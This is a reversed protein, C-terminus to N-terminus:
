TQERSQAKRVELNIAAALHNLRVTRHALGSEIVAKPMGYVTCDDAHQALVTGGAERLLRCGETGDHGMGTMIVALINGSFIEVASRLLYDVSPHCGHEPPDDTVEATVVKRDCRLRLQRGGPAVAVTGPKIEDGTEVEVVSLPSMSDLRRALSSTYGPPMHQVVIVPVPLQASLSPIVNRLAEPGGTSTGIVVADISKSKSSARLTPQPQETGKRPERDARLAEIKAALAERLMERTQTSNDGSPKLVFDFAGEMLAETTAEAGDSTLRSVMVIRSACNQRRLERLTEIGNMEPMEVDLTVLDPKLKEIVSLATRGNSAKGVVECGPLENVVDRIMLRFLASDDVVVIRLPNPTSASPAPMNLNYFRPM